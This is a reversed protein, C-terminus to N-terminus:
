AATDKGPGPGLAEDLAHCASILALHTFAQPFNGLAEGTPGIEESYLGLHNAYTLMQELNERAEELRGARCLAEVLWFSCISFTGEEDSFGDDAASGVQYRYVHPQHTLDRHIRDITAVLRPDTAPTFGTLSILLASADVADAGYYQVFSHLEDSWGKAMIEDYLTDRHHRWEDIPAPLGQDNAMRIARDFGVWCMLRSHLFEKPGGRVEWIGEDPTQWHRSM